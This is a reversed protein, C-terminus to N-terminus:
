KIVKDFQKKLFSVSDKIYIKTQDLNEHGLLTSVTLLDGDLKEYMDTAFYKRIMHSSLRNLNCKKSCKELCYDIMDNTAPKDKLYNYIVYESNLKHAVKLLEKTQNGFFAIRNKRNKTEIIRIINSDLDIDKFKLRILENRRLGTERLLSIILKYSLNNDKNDLSFVYNYILSMESFTATAISKTDDTLVIFKDKFPIEINYYNFVMKFYKQIKKISNNKLGGRINKYYDVFSLWSYKSLQNYNEINYHNLFELIYNNMGLYFNYTAVSGSRYNVSSTEQLKTMKLYLLYNSFLEKINM